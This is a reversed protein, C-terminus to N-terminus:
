DPLDMILYIPSHDSLGYYVDRPEDQELFTLSHGIQPWDATPTAPNPYLTMVAAKIPILNRYWINDYPKNLARRSLKLSTPVNILAPKFQRHLAATVFARHAASLNFDGLVLVPLSLAQTALPKAMNTAFRFTPPVENEPKDETPVFHVNAVAFYQQEKQSFFFAFDPERVIESAVDDALPIPSPPLCRDTTKLSGATTITALAIKEHHWLFAYLEDGDTPKPSIAVCVKSGLRNQLAAALELLRAPGTSPVIEQFAVIDAQSQAIVQAIDDM